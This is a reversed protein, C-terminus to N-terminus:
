MKMSHLNIDYYSAFKTTKKLLKKDNSILLGYSQPISGIMRCLIQLQADDNIENRFGYKWKSKKLLENELETLVHNDLLFDTKIIPIQIDSNKINYEGFSLINLNEELINFDVCPYKEKNLMKYGNETQGIHTDIIVFKVIEDLKNNDKAAKLMDEMIDEIKFSCMVSSDIMVFVIDEHSINGLIIDERLQKLIADQIQLIDTDKPFSNSLSLLENINFNRRSELNDYTWKRWSAIQGENMLSRGKNYIVQSTAM